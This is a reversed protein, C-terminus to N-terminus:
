LLAALSCGDGVSGQVGPDRQAGANKPSDPAGRTLQASLFPSSIPDPSPSIHCEVLGKELLVPLLGPLSPQPGSSNGAAGWRTPAGQVQQKNQLSPPKRQLTRWLGGELCGWEQGEDGLVTLYEPPWTSSGHRVEGRHQINTLPQISPLVEREQGEAWSGKWCPEKCEGKGHFLVRCQRTHRRCPLSSQFAGQHGHSPTHPYCSGAPSTVSSAWSSSHVIFSFPFFGSLGALSATRDMWASM